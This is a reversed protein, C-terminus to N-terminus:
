EFGDLERELDEFEDEVAITNEEVTVLQVSETKGILVAIVGSFLKWSSAVVMILGSCCFLCGCNALTEDWSSYVTDSTEGCGEDWTWWTVGGYEFSGSEWCETNTVEDGEIIVFMLVSLGILGASIAAYVLGDKIRKHLAVICGM